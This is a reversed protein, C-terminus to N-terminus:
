VKLSERALLSKDEFLREHEMPIEKISEADRMVFLSNKSLTRLAGHIIEMHTM